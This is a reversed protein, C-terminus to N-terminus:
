RSFGDNVATVCLVHNDHLIFAIYKIKKLNSKFFFFRSVITCVISMTCLANNSVIGVFYTLFFSFIKHIYGNSNLITM